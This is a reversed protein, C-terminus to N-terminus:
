NPSESRKREQSFRWRERELRLTAFEIGVWLVVGLYVTLGALCCDAM